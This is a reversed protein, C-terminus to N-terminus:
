VIYKIQRIRLITEVHYKIYKIRKRVIIKEFKIMWVSSLKYNTTQRTRIDLSLNSIVFNLRVWGKILDGRVIKLICNCNVNSILSIFYCSFIYDFM